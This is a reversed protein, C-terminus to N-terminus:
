SVSGIKLIDSVQLDLNWECDTPDFIDKLDDGCKWHGSLSVIKGGRSRCDKALSKLQKLTGNWEGVFCYDVDEDGGFRVETGSSRFFRADISRCERRAERRLRAVTAKVGQLTLAPRKAQQPRYARLALGRADAVLDYVEALFVTERDKGGDENFTPRYGHGQAALCENLSKFGTLKAYFFDAVEFLHKGDAHYADSIRGDPCYRYYLPSAQTTVADYKAKSVKIAELAAFAQDVTYSTATDNM